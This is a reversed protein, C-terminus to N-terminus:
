DRLSVLLLALIDIREDAASKEFIGLANEVDVILSGVEAASFKADPDYDAFNRKDQAELFVKAFQRLDSSVSKRGLVQQYRPSLQARNLDGFVKKMRTHSFARYIIAYGASGKRDSGLFQNTAARVVDHFLAYYASSLARRVGADTATGDPGAL